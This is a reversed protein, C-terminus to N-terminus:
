HLVSEKKAKSKANLAAVQEKCNDLQKHTEIAMKAAVFAVFDPAIDEDNSTIDALAYVEGWFGRQNISRPTDQYEKWYARMANEDIPIDAHYM